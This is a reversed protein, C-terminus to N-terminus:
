LGAALALKISNIRIDKTDSRSLLIVPVTAGVILGGTQMGAFYMMSKGLINGTDIDPVIFVDAVGVVDNHLGKHHASELSLANDLALPGDVTMGKLQKRESMKALVAADVSSPMKFSVTEAASLIAVKPKECGLKKAIHVANQMIEHKEALTPHPVMGGDSLFRFSGNWEFVLVHSLVSSMKIGTESNLIAKLLTPTSITGKMLAKAEGKRVLEVTAAAAAEPTRADILRPSFGPTEKDLLPKMVDPNGVFLCEVYGLDSAEKAALIAEVDEPMCIALPVRGTQLKADLDSFRM